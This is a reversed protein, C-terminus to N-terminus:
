GDQEWEGLALHAEALARKAVAVSVPKAGRVVIRDLAAALSRAAAFTRPLRMVLYSAADDSLQIFQERCLRRLVVDLLALDPERLRAVPLAQLRSRLASEAVPWLGPATKATLLVAGQRAKALDLVRWLMAEDHPGDADDILLRGGAEDFRASAVEPAADPAVERAGSELAWALALHTKGSGPPGVLALAGGPWSRWDTLLQAADSNAESVVLTDPSREGM